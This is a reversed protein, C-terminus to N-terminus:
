PGQLCPKNSAEDALRRAEENAKPGPAIKDTVCIEKATIKAVVLYSTTKDPNNTDESANYRVILAVPISKTKQKIIRWEAKMSLSSFASSVVTWLELSHKSRRPTVVTLNQRLDGEELLLTYGATGSCSGLYYGAESTDSKLTRCSKEGLNTYVSTATQASVGTTALLLIFSIFFYRSL